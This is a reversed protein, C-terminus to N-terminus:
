NAMRNIIKRRLPGTYTSQIPYVEDSKDLWQLALDYQGLIFCALSINYAACSQKKASSTNVLEMWIEMAETWKMEDAAIVANEWPTSEPYYIIPFTESKWENEVKKSVGLGMLQADSAFMDSKDSSITASAKLSCVDDNKDMSDYVYVNSECTLRNNNATNGFQPKDVVFVVDSETTMILRVLTDKASYVGGDEKILSFVSVEKQNNFISKEMGQALGDSFCNNFLSDRSSGTELYVISVDKGAVDLGSVSPYRMELNLLYASPSCSALVLTAFVAFLSRRM